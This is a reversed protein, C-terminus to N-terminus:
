QLKEHNEETGDPLHQYPAVFISCGNRAFGRGNMLWEVM